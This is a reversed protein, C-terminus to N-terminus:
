VPNLVVKLKGAKIAVDQTTMGVYSIQLTTASAPVSLTFNGNADTTVGLTSGKVVVSAGIIPLGDESSTVVGSVKRLNQANALGIGVLLCVCLFFLKKRM